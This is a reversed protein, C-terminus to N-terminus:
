RAANTNMVSNRTADRFQAPDRMNDTHCQGSTHGRNIGGSLQGNVREVTGDEPDSLVLDTAVQCFDNTWWNTTRFATTYYNVKGRSATSIGSLWAQAGSYTLNDNTGCGVGFWNGLTALIGALNTGRYPSGVSQILRSGTARDLGSWYYNYLHLSALGGQSHAVVGFSNWQAGFNAILRAFQDNTRNQNADLFTSANTFNATPWVGGSCYGHVLVLRSGTNKALDLDAPRPGMRMAEDVVVEAASKASGEAPLPLPLRSAEALTVFHDPDEFRVNRLEFPGRAGSLAIWREDLRLAAKGAEPVVMGGIWAVPADAGNPAKGWVEAYARYHQNSKASAVPLGIRFAGPESSGDVVLSGKALDLTDVVIPVVHEATRLFERGAADVGRVEVTALWAGAQDAVFRGYSAGAMRATGALAEAGMAFVRQSGDPAVVRLTASTIRGAAPGMAVGGKADEGTVLAAIEVVEGLAQRRHTQFSSLETTGSGEVLVFGGRTGANGAISLRVPGDSKAGITYLDAPVQAGDIGFPADALTKAVALSKAAGDGQGFAVALEAGGSFVLIRSGAEMAPLVLESRWARKEATEPGVRLLAHSSQIAAAAPDIAAMAAFESPPGALQKPVIGRDAALATGISLSLASMLLLSARRM